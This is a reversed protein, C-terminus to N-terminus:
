NASARRPRRCSRSDTPRYTSNSRRECWQRNITSPLPAREIAFPDLRWAAEHSPSPSPAKIRRLPAGTVCRQSQLSLGQRPDAGAPHADVNLAKLLDADLGAFKELVHDVIREDFERAIEDFCEATTRWGLAHVTQAHRFRRRRKLELSRAQQLSLRRVAM